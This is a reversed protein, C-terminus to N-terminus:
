EYHVLFHLNDNVAAYTDYLAEGLAVRRTTRAIYTRDPRKLRVAYSVSEREIGDGFEISQQALDHNMIDHLPVLLGGMNRTRHLRSVFEFGAPTFHSIPLQLPFERRLRPLVSNCFVDSARGLAGMEDVCTRHM